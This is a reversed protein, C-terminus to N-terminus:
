GFVGSAGKLSHTCYKNVLDWVRASSDAGGTVVLTSTSDWAMTVVPGRHYSKFSRVLELGINLAVNIHFFFEM